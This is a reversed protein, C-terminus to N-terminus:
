ALQTAAMQAHDQQWPMINTIQFQILAPFRGMPFTVTAHGNMTNIALIMIGNEYPVAYHYELVPFLDPKQQHQQSFAVEVSKPKGQGESTTFRLVGVAGGENLSLSVNQLYSPSQTNIMSPQLLTQNLLDPPLVGGCAISDQAYPSYRDWVGNIYRPNCENGPKLDAECDSQRIYWDQYPARVCGKPNSQCGSYYSATSEGIGAMAPIQGNHTALTSQHAYSEQPVLAMRSACNRM